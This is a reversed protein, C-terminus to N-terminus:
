KTLSPVFRVMANLVSTAGCASTGIQSYSYRIAEDVSWIM